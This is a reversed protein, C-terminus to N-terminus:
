QLRVGHSPCCALPFAIAQSGPFQSFDPHNMDTGFFFRLQQAKGKSADESAESEMVSMMQPADCACRALDLRRECDTTNLYTENPNNLETDSREGVSENPRPTACLKSFCEEGKASSDLEFKKMQSAWMLLDEQLPIKTEKLQVEREEVDNGSATQERGHSIPGTLAQGRKGM